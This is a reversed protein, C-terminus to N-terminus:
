AEAGDGAVAMALDEMMPNHGIILISDANCNARIIDLYGAADAIYLNDDFVVRGTDAKAAVGELTQRARLAGSCVTIDPIYGNFNMTDGVLEADGVGIEDLPRDFDRVGPMAWGAKAHRLLYLKGM